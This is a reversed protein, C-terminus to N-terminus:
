VKLYKYYKEWFYPKPPKLILDSDSLSKIFPPYTEINEFFYVRKDFESSERFFQVGSSIKHDSSPLVIVPTNAIVSFIMGHYLDTIILDYSSFEKIKETVVQETNRVIFDYSEDIYTGSYFISFGKYRMANELSKIEEDTVLSEKQKRNRLAICIKKIQNSKKALTFRGILSTVVDPMLTTKIPFYKKALDFSKNDRCLMQIREPNILGQAYEIFNVESLNITQPFYIVKNNPFIKLVAMQMLATPAFSAYRNCYIDNIHYGSHFIIIDNDSSVFKLRTLFVELDKQPVNTFAPFTYIKYEPFSDKLINIICFTQAHDGLNSDHPLNFLFLKKGTLEINSALRNFIEFDSKRSKLYENLQIYPIKIM